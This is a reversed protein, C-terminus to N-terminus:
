RDGIAPSWRIQRRSLDVPGADVLFGDRRQGGSTQLTAGSQSSVAPSGGCGLLVAGALLLRSVGGRTISAPRLNPFTGLRKPLRKM